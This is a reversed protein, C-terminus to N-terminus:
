QINVIHQMHRKTVMIGPACLSVWPWDNVVVLLSWVWDKRAKSYIREVEVTGSQSQLLCCKMSHWSSYSYSNNLWVSINLVEGTAWITFCRDIVQSVQTRDRPWSSGRSFSIAGCELVIAQFIGQFSSGPLSCDMPNCLTLCLQAVESWKVSIYRMKQTTM